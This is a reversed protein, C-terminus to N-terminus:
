LVSRITFIVCLLIKSQLLNSDTLSTIQLVPRRFTLCVHSGAWKLSRLVRLLMKYITTLLKIKIYYKRTGGSKCIAPCPPPVTLLVAFLFSVLSYQGNCIQEGFRSTAGFFPPVRCFINRMIERKKTM